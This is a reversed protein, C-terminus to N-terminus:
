DEMVVHLYGENDVYFDLGVSDAKVYHLYGDEDVYFDVWGATNAAQEARDASQASARAYRDADMRDQEAESASRASAQASQIASWASNNAQTASLLANSAYGQTTNRASEARDADDKASLASEGAEGAKQEATTIAENAKSILQDVIPQQAPTPEMDSPRPKLRNPIKWSRETRGWGTGTVFYFAYIDKGTNILEVPVEAGNEGGYVSLAEGKKEDNSFDIRYTNPLDEIEPLFYYGYDWQTIAATIARKHGTDQGRITITGDM